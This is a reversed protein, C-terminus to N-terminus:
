LGVEVSGRTGWQTRRLTLLAWLRLPTLLIVHLLAYLPALAFTSLQWAMTEDPRGFYRVNRAYALVIAYAGYHWPIMHHTVLPHIYVATLLSASFGLWVALEVLSIWFPWRRPGFRRLAWLSERFFSKNWRLQQRRYHSLREPVLTYGVSTDQLVVKGALLAYQTLRRDDGYQIHVGLFTQSLFDELQARVVDARFFSLSGCCCVVSGVHSYAAREFSFANAYRLDVLRTLLNARHNLARVTGAVAKVEPDAFPVLGQAIAERDLVTDSDVTMLIDCRARAFAFAQGYRKGANTPRRHISAGPTGLLATRAIRLCIDDSSGDDIVWIEDAPRSQAQISELCRLFARPDENYFSVIVAVRHGTPAATTGTTGTTSPRYVASGVLKIALITLAGVGYWSGKGGSAVAIVAIGAAALVFMGVSQVNRARRTSTGWAPRETELASEFAHSIGAPSAQRQIELARTVQERTARGQAILIEGLRRSDGFDQEYRGLLADAAGIVGLEELIEGLLPGRTRGHRDRTRVRNDRRTLTSVEGSVM